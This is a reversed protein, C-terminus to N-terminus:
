KLRAPPSAPARALDRCFWLAPDNPFCKIFHFLGGEVALDRSELNSVFQRLGDADGSRWSEIMRAAPAHGLGSARLFLYAGRLDPIPCPALSPRGRKPLGLCTALAGHLRTSLRIPDFHRLAFARANAGLRARESPNALLDEVAHVFACGSSVVRGTEGDTVFRSPGGYDFVVPPIGAFMAEQLSKDGSGYGREALPYAFVDTTELVSRIDETFGLDKFISPARSAAIQRRIEPDVAGGVLPINLGPARIASMIEVFDPHLKGFNLTGICTVNLGEHPRHEFGDLRSFDAIAPIEALDQIRDPMHFAEPLPATLLLKDPFRLLADHFRQPPHAGRVKMWFVLRAPPLNESLLLWTGPTSWFHFLVLDASAMAELTERHGPDRAIAVGLRKASFLLPPYAQRDLAVIRHSFAPELHASHEVFSLLSRAPGGATIRDIIHLITMRPSVPM